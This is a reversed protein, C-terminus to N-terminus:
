HPMSVKCSFGMGVIRTRSDTLTIGPQAFKHGGAFFLIRWFELLPVCLVCNLTGPMLRISVVTLAKAQLAGFQM